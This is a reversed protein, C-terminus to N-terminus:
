YTKQVLDAVKGDKPALLKRFPLAIVDNHRFKTDAFQMGFDQHEGKNLLTAGGQVLQYFQNLIVEEHHDFVAKRSAKKFKSNEPNLCMKAHPTTLLKSESEGSVNGM